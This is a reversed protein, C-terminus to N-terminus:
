GATVDGGMASMPTVKSAPTESRAAAWRSAIQSTYSSAKERGGNWQRSSSDARWRVRSTRSRSSSVNPIVIPHRSVDFGTNSFYAWASEDVVEGLEIEARELAAAADRERRDKAFARAAVDFAYARLRRDSIQAARGQAALAHGIGVRPRGRWTALHSMNCLVMIGLETNRADHAATRAVEYYGDAAGYDALDFSLWGAFRSLNALLSLLQDRVPGGTSSLLERVLDRQALVTAPAAQPGLADDQRM